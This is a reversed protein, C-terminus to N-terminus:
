HLNLRKNGFLSKRIEIFNFGALIIVYYLVIKFMSVNKYEFYSFSFSGFFTIVKLMIYLIFELVKSLVRALDFWLYSLVSAAIGIALIAALIPLILLNAFVTVTSSINFYYLTIPLVGLWACFSASTGKIVYNKIRSKISLTSDKVRRCIIKELKPTLYVISLVAVFSLQFGVEFLQYPNFVLLIFGALGLSNYVNSNRNLAWGFVFIGTM